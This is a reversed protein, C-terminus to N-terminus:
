DLHFIEPIPIFRPKDGETDMLPNTKSWWEKMIPEEAIRVFCKEPEESEFYAFLDLGHRFISYNRYGARRHAELVENGIERHLREYEDIVSEDRLKMMFAYRRMTIGKKNEV